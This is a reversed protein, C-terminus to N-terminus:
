LSKKSKGKKIWMYFGHIWKCLTKPCIAVLYASFMSCAKVRKFYPKYKRILKVSFNDTKRLTILRRVTFFATRRGLTSVITECCESSLTGNLKDLTMCFNQTWIQMAKKQVVWGSERYEANEILYKDEAALFPGEAYIALASPYIFGCGNMREVMLPIDFRKVISKKCVSGGYLILQWYHDAMFTNKDATELINLTSFFEHQVRWDRDYLAFLEIGPHATILALITPVVVSHGDGCLMVYESQAAQLAILTKEDVNMDAAIRFYYIRESLYNKVIGETKEDPSSDYISVCFDFGAAIYNQYIALMNAICDARKYTPVVIELKYDKRTNM